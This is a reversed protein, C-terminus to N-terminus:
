VIIHLLYEKFQISVNRLFLCREIDRCRGAESRKWGEFMRNDVLYFQKLAVIIEISILVSTKYARVFKYSVLVVTKLWRPYEYSM